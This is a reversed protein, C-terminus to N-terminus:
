EKLELSDLERCRREDLLRHLFVASEDRVKQRATKSPSQCNLTTTDRDSDEASYGKEKQCSVANADVIYKIDELVAATMKSLYM